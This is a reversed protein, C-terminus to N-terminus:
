IKIPSKPKKRLLNKYIYERFNKPLLFIISRGIGDVVARGVGKINCKILHKQLEYEALAYKLGGRRSYMEKGVIADVLIDSLNGCCADAHILSAWLAYDEKLFIEPYGGVGRILEARFAVTMHNFPNRQRAFSRIDFNNIPTSRIAIPTGDSYIEQIAGGLIDVPPFIKAIANAQREFRDLRNIDDSDARVVWETRVLALGANLAKALGQNEYLRHVQFINFRCQFDQIISELSNPLPGDAVLVVANPQLTNSFISELALMFRSPEEKFYVAMLVTFGGDFGRRANSNMVHAGM